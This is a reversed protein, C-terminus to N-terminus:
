IRIDIHTHNAKTGANQNFKRGTYSASVPEVKRKQSSVKVNKSQPVQYLFTAACGYLPTINM